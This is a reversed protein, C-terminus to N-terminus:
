FYGVSMIDILTAEEALLTKNVFSRKNQEKGDGHGFEVLHAHPATSGVFSVKDVGTKLQYRISKRLGGTRRTPYGGPTSVGKKSINKRMTKAAYKLANRRAELEGKDIDKIVDDVFSQLKFSM